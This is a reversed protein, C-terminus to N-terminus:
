SSSSITDFLSSSATSVSYSSFDVATSDQLECEIDTGQRMSDIPFLSQTDKWLPSLDSSMQDIKRRIGLDVAFKNTTPTVSVRRDNPYM